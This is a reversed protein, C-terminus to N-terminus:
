YDKRYIDDRFQLVGSEDVWATRYIVDIDVPEKLSLFETKEKAIEKVLKERTWKPDGKLVFDALEMPKQVRICGHSFTRVRRAFFSKMPTDHMYIDFPNPFMFKIRGLANGPGSDQVIKLKKLDAEKWNYTKPDIEVSEKEGVEVTEFAKMNEHTLYDPDKRIKELLEKKFIKVPVHWKPNLILQKMQSSLLPTQWEKRLGVVVKMDLVPHGEEYAVLHFNPINVQVFRHTTPTRAEKERQQNVLLQQIRKEVPVNLTSVTEVGVSGDAELGHRKQFFVVAEYLSDDFIESASSSKLDGTIHLRKKLEVIRKDQDGKVLKPGSEIQNWGGKAQIKQYDTLAQELPTEAQAIGSLSLFFLFLFSYRPNM